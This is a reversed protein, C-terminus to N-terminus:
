GEVERAGRGNLLESRGCHQIDQQNSMHMPTLTQSQSGVMFIVDLARGDRM